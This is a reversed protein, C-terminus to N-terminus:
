SRRGFMAVAVKRGKGNARIALGFDTFAPDLLISEYQPDELWQQGFFRVDAATPETGCGGCAGATMSLSRWDGRREPSLGRTIDGIDNLAFEDEAADRLLFLAADTLADNPELPRVGAQRRARNVLETGLSVQASASLPKAEEGDAIGRPAGAGAFTQVAYLDQRSGVALGFGFHTIGRALINRRHEPSRMWGRHLREVTDRTAPSACPVCRAINEGALRWHSGGAETYRDMITKGEPSVHGYYSRHLMDEAHTQAAEKLNPELELPRLDHARRDHNVLELAYSRLDQLDGSEETGGASSAAALLTTVIAISVCGCRPM